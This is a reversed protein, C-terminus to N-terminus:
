PDNGNSRRKHLRTLEDELERRKRALSALTASTGRNFVRSSLWDLAALAMIWLSVLLVGCLLTTFLKPSDKFILFDLVPVLIGMLIILVSIQVRRRFQSHFFRRERDDLKEDHRYANWAAFHWRFLAGGVIMLAAGFALSVKIDIM